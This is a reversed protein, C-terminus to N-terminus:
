GVSRCRKVKAGLKGAGEIRIYANCGCVRLYLVPIKQGHWLDVPVKDKLAVTPSHNM